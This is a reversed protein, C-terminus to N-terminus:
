RYIDKRHGIALVLILVRADHIEYVIRYDGVRIRWLNGGGQMKGVGLPRPNTALGRMASVLRQQTERPLRRLAMDASPRVIVRYDAM